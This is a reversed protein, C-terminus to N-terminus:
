GAETTQKDSEGYAKNIMLEISVPLQQANGTEERKEVWQGAEIAAQKELERLEKLLGVDIKFVEYNMSGKFDRVILGTKGGPVDQVADWVSRAEIVQNLLNWRRNYAEMRNQKEAIGKNRIAARDAEIFADVEAQFEPQEYWHKVIHDKQGLKAAVDRRSLGDAFLRAAELHKSTIKFPPRPM